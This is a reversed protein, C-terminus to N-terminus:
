KNRWNEKYMKIQEPTDTVIGLEQAEQVIGDIFISMEKTDYESSGKYIKYHTFEKGNLISTGAIDFYNFYGTVNIESLVSVMESQGYEKLMKLYVEEKSLRLKDGIETILKWCYNNANLSRKNRHKKAEIDLVPANEIDELSNINSNLLFSIIPKGSSYDRSLDKLTGQMKM